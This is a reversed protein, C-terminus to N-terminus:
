RRNPKNTGRASSHDEFPGIPLVPRAIIGPLRRNLVMNPRGQLASFIVLDKASNLLPEGGPAGGEFQCPLSFPRGAMERPGETTGRM